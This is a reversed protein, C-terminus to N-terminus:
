EHDDGWVEAWRFLATFNDFVPLGLGLAFAVERDAGRSEGPLRIVANCRRILRFDYDLWVNYDIGRDIEMSYQDQFHSWLPNLLDFPERGDKMHEHWIQMAKQTNELRDGITYPCAMYVLPKRDTKPIYPQDSM